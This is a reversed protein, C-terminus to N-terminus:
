RWDGAAVFAAWRSPHGGLGAERQGELVALGAARVADATSAGTGLRARYLELMWRRAARDEVPWLSMVLTRAGAVEFARRLGLVGEGARVEGVGTDCASLVAWEVGGLDLAGIEEATLVGDDAASTDDDRRNAGALALGSGLLPNEVRGALGGSRGGRGSAPGNDCDQGLFFGHTALHLVRRGRAELKFATESAESGTRTVATGLEPTRRDNWLEAVDEAELRTGPLPGFRRGRFADCGPRPGRFLDATAAASPPAPPVVDFAAGGMALLGRGPAGARAGPVVDRESSLYHLTPGRELLYGGEAVPLSAFSVGLLTGDPVILVRAADGLAPVVPDWVRRRLEGAVTRYGAEAERLRETPVATVLRRWSRVAEDIAAAPGLDFRRPAADGPSLVFAAYAPQAPPTPPPAASPAATDDLAPPPAQRDYRVFALLATDPPLARAVDDLGIDARARDAAFATSRAALELELRRRDERAEDLLSRLGRPPDEDLNRVTLNALRTRATVVRAALAATEADDSSVLSRNRAAMEDLVVARSRIVTDWTRAAHSPSPSQVGLTLVLGLVSSRVEAFRLALTEPLARATLRLQERDITEARLADDLALDPKGIRRDLRAQARLVEAVRPHDPGLADRRIDLADHLRAAAEDYAGQALLVTGLRLLTDGVYLSDPGLAARRIELAQELATRAGAEDGEDALSEGLAHLARAVTPHEPGLTRRRAEIAERLLSTGSEVEGDAILSEALWERSDLTLHHEPGLAAARREAARRHWEVAGDFDGLERLSLAMQHEVYALDPHDDGLAAKLIPYSREVLELSEGYRGAARMIAGLNMVAWGYDPHEKGVSAALGDVQRRAADAAGRLDGLMGLELAVSGYSRATVPHDPGLARELAESGLRAQELAGHYDGLAEMTHAINLRAKAVDPHDAGLDAERIALARRYLALSQELQGQRSLDVALANLAAAVEPHEPGYARERIDLARSHAEKAQDLHGLYFQVIGLNMLSSAIEPDDPESRDEKIEVAREALELTEPDHFKGQRWLSQVLLDLVKAAELSRAGDGAEVEALRDRALAEAEAYRGADILAQPGDPVDDALVPGCTLLLLLGLAAIRSEPGAFAIRM